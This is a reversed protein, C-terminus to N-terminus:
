ANTTESAFLGFPAGLRAMLAETAQEVQDGALLQVVARCAAQFVQEESTAPIDLQRALARWPNM